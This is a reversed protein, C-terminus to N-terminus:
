GGPAGTSAIRSNADAESDCTISTGVKNVLPLAFCQTGSACETLVWKSGVCQAFAGEVCAMASDDCSDTKKISAFQTNLQQASIGNQKFSGADLTPAGAVAVLFTFISLFFPGSIPSM